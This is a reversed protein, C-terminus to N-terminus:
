ARIANSVYAKYTEMKSAIYGKTYSFSLDRSGGRCNGNNATYAELM